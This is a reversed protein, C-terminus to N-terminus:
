EQIAIVEIEVLAGKPLESVEVASRAPYNNETFYSKYIENVVAFNNMDTLFITAKVVKDLSSSAAKLVEKINKMVQHTQASIDEDILTNTTPDIAIQGSCYVTKDITALLGGAELESLPPM